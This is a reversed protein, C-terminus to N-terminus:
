LNLEEFRVEYVTDGFRDQVVIRDGIVNIDRFMPVFVIEDPVTKLIERNFITEQGKTVVLTLHFAELTLNCHLACKIGLGRVTRAKFVWQNVYGEQRFKEIGDRLEKGPINSCTEAKKIGEFLMDAFFEHLQNGDLSKFKGEDYGIEIVLVNSTNVFCGAKPTRKGVFCIRRFGESKFKLPKLQRGLYNCISRSRDKFSGILSDDSEGWDPYLYVDRLIM